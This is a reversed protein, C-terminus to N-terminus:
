DASVQGVLHRDIGKIFIETQSPTEVTIGKPMSYKVPHSFGLTLNLESGQAQARYGVGVLVLKQEFGQSVGTVMNQILARTTGAIADALKSTKFKLSVKILKDELQALVVDHLQQQITGKSGRVTILDDKIIAEVGTPLTIPKKAVRSM